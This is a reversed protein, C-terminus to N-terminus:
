TLHPEVWSDNFELEIYNEVYDMLTENPKPIWYRTDNYIQKPVAYCTTYGSSYNWQCTKANKGLQKCLRKDEDAMALFDDLSNIDQNNGDIIKINDWDRRIINVCIQGENILANELTEFVLCQM